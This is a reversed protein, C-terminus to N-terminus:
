AGGYGKRIVVLGDSRTGNSRDLWVFQANFLREEKFFLLYQLPMNGRVDEIIYTGGKRLKHFSNVLTNVGAEFTHLGDDIMIDFEINEFNSWLDDFTESKLQDVYFTKINEEEFLIGKDIDAGYINALPFYDRWVRLSAGPVGNATM